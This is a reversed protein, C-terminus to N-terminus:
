HCASDVDGYASRSTALAVLGAAVVAMRTLRRRVATASLQPTDVSHPSLVPVRAADEAMWLARREIARRLPRSRPSSCTGSCAVTLRALHVELLDPSRPRSFPSELRVLCRELWRM